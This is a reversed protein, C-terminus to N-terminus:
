REIKSVHADNNRTFKCQQWIVVDAVSPGWVLSHMGGCSSGTKGLIPSSSLINCLFGLISTMDIMM